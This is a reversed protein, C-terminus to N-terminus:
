ASIELLERKKQARYARAYLKRHERLFPKTRLYRLKTCRSCQRQMYPPRSKYWIGTVSLNHGRRCFELRAYSEPKVAARHRNKKICDHINDLQTGLWLHSPRVCPPNDCKHLVFLNRPIRGKTVRWAFRHAVLTKNGGTTHVTFAGYGKRATGGTWLWCYGTKHVKAWFRVTMAKTIRLRL